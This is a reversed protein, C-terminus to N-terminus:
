KTISTTLIDGYTKIDKKLMQIEKAQLVQTFKPVNIVNNQQFLDFLIEKVMHTRPFPHSYERDKSSETTDFWFDTKTVCNCDVEMQALNRKM